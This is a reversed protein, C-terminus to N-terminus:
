DDVEDVKKQLDKLSTESDLYQTLKHELYGIVKKKILFNPEPGELVVQEKGVTLTADFKFGMITGVVNVADKTWKSKIGYKKEWYEGLAKMRNKAEAPKLEHDIELKM